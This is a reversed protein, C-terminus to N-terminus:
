LLTALQLCQQMRELIIIPVPLHFAISGSALEVRKMVRRLSFM